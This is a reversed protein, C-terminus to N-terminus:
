SKNCLDKKMNEFFILSSKLQEKQTLIIQNSYKSQATSTVSANALLQLIHKSINATYALITTQKGEIQIFSICM